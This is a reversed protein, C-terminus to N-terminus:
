NVSAFIEGWHFRCKSKDINEKKTLPLFTPFFQSPTWSALVYCEAKVPVSIFFKLQEVIGSFFDIKKTESKQKKNVTCM